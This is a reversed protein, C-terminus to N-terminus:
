PSVGTSTAAREGIPTDTGISFTKMRRREQANPGRMMWSRLPLERLFDAASPIVGLDEIVHAAAITRTAVPVGDSPRKHFLGFVRECVGLGFTNHLLARHRWDGIGATKSSDLFAHIDAYDEPVGGFRKASSISHDLVDGM